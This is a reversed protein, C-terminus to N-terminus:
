NQQLGQAKCGLHLSILWKLGLAHHSVSSKSLIIQQCYFGQQCSRYSLITVNSRARNCSTLPGANQHLGQVLEAWPKKLSVDRWYSLSIFLGILLEGSAHMKCSRDWREDSLHLSGSPSVRNQGAGGDREVGNRWTTTMKWGNVKVGTAWRMKLTEMGELRREGQKVGETDAMRVPLNWRSGTSGVAGAKFGVHSVPTM